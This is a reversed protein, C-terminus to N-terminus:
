PRLRAFYVDQHGTTDTGRRSDTWTALLDNGSRVVGLRRGFSARASGQPVPGITARSAVKTVRRPESFTEGGDRSFTWYLNQEHDPSVDYYVIDIRGSTAVSVGPRVQDHAEDTTAIERGATWTRGGDSSAAFFVKFTEGPRDWWTAYVHGSRSGTALDFYYYYPDRIRPSMMTVVGPSSFTDGHDDSSAVKIVHLGAAFQLWGVYLESQPGVVPVPQQIYGDTIPAISTPTSFSAGDTSKALLVSPDHGCVNQVACGWHSWTAYVIGNHQDVALSPLYEHEAPSNLLVPKSFTKGGDHSITVFSSWWGFPEQAAGFAYYVTGTSDIVVSPSFCNMHGDPMPVMGGDGVLPKAVWSRGGNKSQAFGCFKYQSGEEYAAALIKPREPHRFLSAAHNAHSPPNRRTIPVNKPPQRVASAPLAAVLLSGAILALVGMRRVPDLRRAVRARAASARTVDVREIRM